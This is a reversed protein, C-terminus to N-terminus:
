LGGIPIIERLDNSTIPLIFEEDRKNKVNQDVAVTKTNTDKSLGDKRDMIFHSASNEM